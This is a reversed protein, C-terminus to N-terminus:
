IATPYFRFVCLHVCLVTQHTVSSHCHVLKDFLVYKIIGIDLYVVLALGVTAKTDHLLTKFYYYTPM